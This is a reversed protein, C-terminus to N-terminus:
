NNKEPLSLNEPCLALQCFYVLNSQAQPNESLNTVLTPQVIVVSGKKEPVLYFSPQPKGRPKVPPQVWVVAVGKQALAKIRDALDEPMQEKSAFPGVIVLKGSFDTFGTDALDEVDLQAQKLLTTLKNQPDFVGIATAGALPKLRSLLNTPYVLVDTHGLVNNTADLWQILFRSEANVQPFSLSVTELVTQHPLVQLQKWAQPRDLPMATSSSAQYLQMRLAVSVMNDSPNRWTLNVIRGEGAFVTPTTPESLQLQACALWPWGLTALLIQFPTIIRM